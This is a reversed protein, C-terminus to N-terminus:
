KVTLTLSLTHSTVEGGNNSYATVTVPYTGAPTGTNAAPPHHLYGYRQSCATLGSSCAVLLLAVGLLRLGSGGRKRLAGIGVLSLVGPFLIAYALHSTTGGLPAGQLQSSKSSATTQIQLTSATLPPTIISPTFVSTTAFPLGSIALTVSQTFGNEPTITLIVTGFDGANLNLSSVNATVAFDPPASSTDAQIAASSTSAAFRESGSYVATIQKTGAPLKDLVLAASGDPQIIASGLSQGNSLFSVAGDTVAAGTPDKVTVSLTTKAGDAAISLATRTGTTQSYGITAVLFLALVAALYPGHKIAATFNWKRIASTSQLSM